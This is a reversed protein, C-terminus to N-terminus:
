MGWVCHKETARSASCVSFGSPATGRPALHKALGVGEMLTQCIRGGKLLSHRMSELRFLRSSKTMFKGNLFLDYDKMASVFVVM